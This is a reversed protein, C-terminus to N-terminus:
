FTNEKKELLFRFNNKTDTPLGGSIATMKLQGLANVMALQAANAPLGLVCYGVAGKTNKGIGAFDLTWYYNAVKDADDKPQKWVLKGNEDRGLYLSQNAAAQISVQNKNNRITLVFFQSLDNEKNRSSAMLAQNDAAQTIVKEGSASVLRYLHNQAQSGFAGLSLLAVLLIKFHYKM